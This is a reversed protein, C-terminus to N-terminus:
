KRARPRRRKAPTPAKRLPGELADTAAMIAAQIREDPVGTLDVQHTIIEAGVAVVHGLSAWRDYADLRDAAATFLDPLAQNPVTALERLMLALTGTRLRRCDKAFSPPAPPTKLPQKPKPMDVYRGM